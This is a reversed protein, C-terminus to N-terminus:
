LVGRGDDALRLVFPEPVRSCLTAPGTCSAFELRGSWTGAQFVPAPPPEPPTPASPIDVPDPTTPTAPSGCAITWALLATAVLPSAVRRM